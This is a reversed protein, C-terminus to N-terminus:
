RDGTAPVPIWVAVRTRTPAGDAGPEVGELAVRARPDLLALRRVTVDLGHGAARLPGPGGPSELTLAVGDGSRAVTLAVRGRGGRGVGHTMANEALPLLLLPSLALGGLDAAVSVEITMATPDRLAHLGFLGEALAVEDAITWRRAEGPRLAEFISRLLRSLSLIGEEALIPDIRCWEALANLTNFLFHPDLHARLALLQAEEAVRALRDARGELEIDRGLGWAGVWFLAPQVLVSGPATLFTNGYDLARPLAWGFVTVTLVGLGVFLTLRVGFAADVRADGFLRRWGHPGFLLFAAVLTVALLIAQLDPTFWAQGIVLALGLLGIPVARRPRALEVLTETLRAPPPATIM